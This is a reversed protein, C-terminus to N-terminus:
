RYYHIAASRVFGQDTTAVVVSLRTEDIAQGGAWKRPMRFTLQARGAADTVGEAVLVAASRDARELTVSIARDAPFKQVAVVAQGDSITVCVSYSTQVCTFAGPEDPGGAAETVPLSALTGTMDIYRAYVWGGAGEPLNVEVWVSDASRGLVSLAQGANLVQRVAYRFGPGTRLNLRDVAVEASAGRGAAAPTFTLAALALAAYAAILWRLITLTKM